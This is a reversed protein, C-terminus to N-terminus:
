NLRVARISINTLSIRLGSQSHGVFVLTLQDDIRSIYTLSAPFVEGSPCDFHRYFTHSQSAAVPYGPQSLTLNYSEENDGSISINYKDFTIEYNIIYLYTGHLSPPDITLIFPDNIPTTNDSSYIDYTGNFLAIDKSFLEVGNRTSQYHAELDYIDPSHYFHPKTITYSRRSIIDNQITDRYLILHQSLTTDPFINPLSNLGTKADWFFQSTNFDFLRAGLERYIPKNFKFKATDSDYRIIGGGIRLSADQASCSIAFLSIFFLLVFLLKTKM